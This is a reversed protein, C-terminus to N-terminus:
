LCPGGLSQSIVLPDGLTSLAHHQLFVHLLVLPSSTHAVSSLSFLQKLPGLGSLALSAVRGVIGPCPELLVGHFQLCTGVQDM